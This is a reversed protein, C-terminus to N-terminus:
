GTKTAAVFVFLGVISEPIDDRRFHELLRRTELLGCRTPSIMCRELEQAAEPSSLIPRAVDIRLGARRLLDSLSAVDFYQHVGYMHQHRAKFDDDSITGLSDATICMRGGSKLIRVAERIATEPRPIHEIACLCTVADACADPLPLAEARGVLFSVAPRLRSHRLHWNADAIKDPDIDIGIARGADRALLQTQLGTGCCIDVLTAGTGPALHALTVDLEFMKLPSYLQHAHPLISLRYAAVKVANVARVKVHEWFGRESM